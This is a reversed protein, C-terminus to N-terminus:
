DGLRNNIFILDKEALVDYIEKIKPIDKNQKKEKIKKTIEVYVIEVAHVRKCQYVGRNKSSRINGYHYIYCKDDTKKGLLIIKAGEARSKMMRNLSYYAARRFHRGTDLASGILEAVALANLYIDRKRRFIKIMKM